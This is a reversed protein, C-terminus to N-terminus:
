ESAASLLFEERKLSWTDIDNLILEMKTGEVVDVAVQPNQEVVSGMVIGFTVSRLIAEPLSVFNLANKQGNPYCICVICFALRIVLHYQSRSGVTHWLYEM